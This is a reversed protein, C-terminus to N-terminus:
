QALRTFSLSVTAGRADDVACSALTDGMVISVCECCCSAHFDVSFCTLATTVIM